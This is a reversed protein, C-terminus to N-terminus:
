SPPGVWPCRHETPHVIGLESLTRDPDHRLDLAILTGANTMYLWPLSGAVAADFHGTIRIVACPSHLVTGGDDQPRVSYPGLVAESPGDASFLSTEDTSSLVAGSRLDIVAHLDKDSYEITAGVISAVGPGDGVEISWSRAAKEMDFACLVFSSVAVIIGDAEVLSAPEFADTRFGGARREKVVCDRSPGGYQGKVLRLEHPSCGYFIATVGFVVGIAVTRVSASSQVGSAVQRRPRHLSGSGPPVSQASLRHRGTLSASRTRM